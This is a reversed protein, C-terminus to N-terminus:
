GRRWSRSRRGVEEDQDPRPVNRSLEDLLDHNASRGAGRRGPPMQASVEPAADDEDHAAKVDTGHNAAARPRMGVLLIVMDGRKLAADKDALFKSQVEASAEPAPQALLVCNQRKEPETVRQVIQELQGLRRKLTATM